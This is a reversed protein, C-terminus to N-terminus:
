DGDWYRCSGKTQGSEGPMVVGSIFALAELMTIAPESVVAVLREPRTCSRRLLGPMWERAVFSTRDVNETAESILMAEVVGVVSGKRWATRVSLKRMYLGTGVDAGRRTGWGPSVTSPTHNGPPVVIWKMCWM